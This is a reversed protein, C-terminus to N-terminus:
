WTLFHLYREPLDDFELPGGCIECAFEPAGHAASGPFHARTDLLREVELDCSTCSYPAFFSLVSAPGRFNYIMNLQRVMPQSCHSLVLESVRPLDRVFNVWLRVGSSNIQRVGRLDLVVSGELEVSLESFDSTEDIQGTLEVTTSDIGKKVHWSLLAQKEGM